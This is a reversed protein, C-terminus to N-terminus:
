KLIEKDLAYAEEIIKPVTNSSDILAEECTYNVALLLAQLEPWTVTDYPLNQVVILQAFTDRLIASNISEKLTNKKQRELKQTHLEGQKHFLGQLSQKIARKIVSDEEKVVVGHANHLHSRINTTVMDRWFVCQGCYWYRRGKNNVLPENGTPKRALAWTNVARTKRKKSARKFSQSSSETSSETSLSANSDEDPISGEFLESELESLESQPDSNSDSDVYIPQSLSPPM